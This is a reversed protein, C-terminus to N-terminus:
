RCPARHCFRGSHRSHTGASSRNDCATQPPSTLHFPFNDHTKLHMDLKGGLGLDETGAGGFESTRRIGVAARDAGTHGSGKRHEVALDHLIGDACAEGQVAADVLVVFEVTLIVEVGVQGLGVLDALEIQGERMVPMDIQLGLGAAIHGDADMLDVHLLIGALEHM